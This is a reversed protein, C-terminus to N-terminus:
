RPAPRCWPREPLRAPPRGHRLPNEGSRRWKDPENRRIM